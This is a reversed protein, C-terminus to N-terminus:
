RLTMELMIMHKCPIGNEVLPTDYHELFFNKRISSIDFGMKQYLYLQGVSSNATGILLHPVQHKSAEIIVHQLLLQGLGQGQFAEEVALNRIEWHDADDTSVVCIGITQEAKVAVYIRSRYIYSQIMKESPDALLLLAMPLPGSTDLTEIVIDAATLKM